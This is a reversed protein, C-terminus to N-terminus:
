SVGRRLSVPDACVGMGMPSMSRIIVVGAANSHHSKSARPGSYRCSHTVASARWNPLLQHADAYRRVTSAAVASPRVVNYTHQSYGVIRNSFVDKIACCNVLSANRKPGSRTHTLRDAGATTTKGVGHRGSCRDYACGTARM